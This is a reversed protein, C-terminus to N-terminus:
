HLDGGVADMLKTLEQSYRRLSRLWKRHVSARREEILTFGRVDVQGADMALKAAAAGESAAVKAGKELAQAAGAAAQVLRYQERVVRVISEVTREFEASRLTKEAEAAEIEGLNLSFLPIELAIGGTVAQDNKKGPEIEYGVKLLSIWPLAQLKEIYLEADAEKIRSASVELEERSNLARRILEEESPLAVFTTKMLSNNDLALKTSGPLGVRRLLDRTLLDREAQLDSDDQVADYYAVEVLALDM